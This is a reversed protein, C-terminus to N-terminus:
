KLQGTFSPPTYIHFRGANVWGGPYYGLSGEAYSVLNKDQGNWTSQNTVFNCKVFTANQSPQQAAWSFLDDLLPCAAM